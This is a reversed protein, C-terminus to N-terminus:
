NYYMVGNQGILTSTLGKALSVSVSVIGHKHNFSTFAPPSRIAKPLGRLPTLKPIFSNAPYLSVPDKTINNM